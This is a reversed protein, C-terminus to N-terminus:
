FLAHFQLGTAILFIFRPFLKKKLRLIFIDALLKIEFDKPRFSFNICYNQWNGLINNLILLDPHWNLKLNLMVIVEYAYNENNQYM